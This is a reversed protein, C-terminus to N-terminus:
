HGQCLSRATLKVLAPGASSSGGSYFYPDFGTWATQLPSLPARLQANQSTIQSSVM